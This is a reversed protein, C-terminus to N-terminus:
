FFRTTIKWCDRSLSQNKSSIQEMYIICYNEIKTFYGAKDPHARANTESDPHMSVEFTNPDM